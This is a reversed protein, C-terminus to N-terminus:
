GTFNMLFFLIATLYTSTNEHFCIVLSLPPGEIDSADRTRVQSMAVHRFDNISKAYPERYQPQFSSKIGSLNPLKQYWVPEGM